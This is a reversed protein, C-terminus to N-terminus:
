PQGNNEGDKRTQGKKSVVLEFRKEQKVGPYKERDVPSLFMELPRACSAISGSGDAHYIVFLENTESHIAVDTVVYLGGKFHRFTNGCLKKRMQLVLKECENRNLEKEGDKQWGVEINNWDLAQGCHYCYDAIGVETFCKGCSPCAFRMVYRISQDNSLIPKKPMQKELAKQAIALAMDQEVTEHETQIANTIIEIAEEANM